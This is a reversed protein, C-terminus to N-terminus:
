TWVNRESREMEIVIVAATVMMEQRSNPSLGGVPRGAAARTERHDTLEGCLVLFAKLFTCLIMVSKQKFGM